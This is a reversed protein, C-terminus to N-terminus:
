AATGRSWRSRRGAEEDGSPRSFGAVTGWAGLLAHVVNEGPEFHWRMLDHIAAAVPPVSGALAVLLGLVGFAQAFGRAGAPRALWGYYAAMGLLVVHLLDHTWDFELFGPIPRPLGIVELPIGVLVLGALVVSWGRAFSSPRLLTTARMM